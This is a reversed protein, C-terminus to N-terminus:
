IMETAHTIKQQGSQEYQRERWPQNPMSCKERAKIAFKTAERSVRLDANATGIMRYAADFDLADTRHRRSRYSAEGV